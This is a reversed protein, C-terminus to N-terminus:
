GAQPAPRSQGPRNHRKHHQGIENKKPDLTTVPRPTGGAAPVEWLGSDFHPTFVITDKAGWSAGFVVAPIKCLNVPAGGRIAIKKLKRDAVFGLWQSDPSFFPNIAGETGPIPKADVNDLSRLYIQQIGGRSAVNAVYTGNPSLTVAPSVLGALRTEPPLEMVVRTVPRTKGPSAPGLNWIAVAGLVVGLAVSGLLLLTTRQRLGGQVAVGETQGPIVPASLTEDIEIRADGIDRIRGKLDKQLCKRLLDRIRLPLKHPLAKWDPEKHVVAAIIETVTEGSFPAKGTLLEYLVCGFAWIDTRRDTEKGKAQEPSMYAATGLIIGAKTAALSLTPANAPDSPSAPYETLAKALGFDLVKVAGEHTLKINAPKLDRHIIGREHGYELAEAIQKAIPLAEEIPIPGQAIRDALTPGEVLEMALARVGKSEEFGFIGAINPHNLAALVQAERQFRAMRQADAAFSEPLVKLAVDRELKCDTARYVEGMGGVGIKETVRYHAITQGIM